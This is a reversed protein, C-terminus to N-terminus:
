EARWARATVGESCIIGPLSLQFLGEGVVLSGSWSVAMWSTFSSMSFSIGM